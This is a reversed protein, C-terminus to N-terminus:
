GEWPQWPSWMAAYLLGTHGLRMLAKLMRLVASGGDEKFGKRRRSGGEGPSRKSGRRSRGLISRQRRNRSGM